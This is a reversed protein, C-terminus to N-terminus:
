AALMAVTGNSLRAGRGLAHAPANTCCHLRPHDRRQNVLRFDLHFLCGRRDDQRLLEGRRLDLSRRRLCGGWVCPGLAATAAGGAAVPPGDHSVLRRAAPASAGGGDPGAVPGATCPGSPPFMCTPAGMGTVATNGCCASSRMLVSSRFKASRWFCILVCVSVASM